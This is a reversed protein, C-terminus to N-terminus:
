YRGGWVPFPTHSWFAVLLTINLRLRVLMVSERFVIAWIIKLMVLSM